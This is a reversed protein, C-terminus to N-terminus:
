SQGFPKQSAALKANDGSHPECILRGNQVHREGPIMKGRHTPDCQISFEEQLNALFVVFALGHDVKQPPKQALNRAFGEDVERLVIAPLISPM